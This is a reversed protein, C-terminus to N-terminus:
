KNSLIIRWQKKGLSSDSWLKFIMCLWWYNRLNEYFKNTQYFLQENSKASLPTQDNSVISPLIGDCRGPSVLLSFLVQIMLIM